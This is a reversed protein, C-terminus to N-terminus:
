SAPTLGDPQYVEDGHGVRKAVKQHEPRGHGNERNAAGQGSGHHCRVPRIRCFSLNGHQAHRHVIDTTGMGPMVVPARIAVKQRIYRDRWRDLDGRNQQRETGPMLGAIKMTVGLRAIM